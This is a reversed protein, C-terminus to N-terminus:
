ISLHGFLIPLTSALLLVAMAINFIRARRPERLFRALFGGFVIWMTTAGMAFVAMIAAGALIPVLKEGPPLYTAAASTTVAWSKPNVWQFAVGIGFGLVNLNGTEVNLPGSTAIKWALRILFAASIGRMVTKLVPAAEFASGLGFGVASLLLAMGVAVGLALPLSRRTGFRVRSTVMMMNNPGPSGDMIVCYIIFSFLLDLHAM